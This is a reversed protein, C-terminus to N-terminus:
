AANFGYRAVFEYLDAIGTPQIEYDLEHDAFYIEPLCHDKDIIFGYFDGCGNNSIPVFKRPLTPATARQREIHFAGERISFLELFGVDGCGLRTAVDRYAEPFTIGSAREYASLEMETVPQESTSLSAAPTAAFRRLEADFEARRM